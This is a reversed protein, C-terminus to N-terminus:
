GPASCHHKRRLTFKLANSLLNLVIKEWMERDVYVPEPLPPCDVILTLGAAQIASRFNSALSATLGSLDTPAYSARSRGAEIRSFDLLSNVLKLLRLSNRHAIVLQERDQKPVGDPNALVSELPGLMLTLPTRFEHSVNSFFVTKARDLEALMDARKKEEEVQRANQLATAVQSAVLEAFTIHDTDLPRCPNVGAVLIGSPKNEGPSSVPLVVVNAVPQDAVGRPIGPINGVSIVRREESRFVDTIPWPLADGTATLDIGSAALASTDPLGITQQLTAFKGGADALYLLAFPIDDANKSLTRAISVCAGATTKEALANAALESLTRLRRANLIKPTVDTSPCFLGAVRGLEDRIPSYSFSYFTEELFGGRDMFLRVDDVFTAEGRTFVKEALPGCIDWIEAWVLSAPRGLAEPHKAAGLVHLYADNYLFSMEQGWGIWMPHRSSLILSVSTKLSQPWNEIPGLPTSIWPFKRIRAGMEGGGQLFDITSKPDAATM